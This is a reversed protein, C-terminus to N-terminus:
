ATPATESDVLDHKLDEETIVYHKFQKNPVKNEFLYDIEEFTRHKTEPLRFYCWLFSFFTIGGWLFDVKGKANAEGPNILYPTIFNTVIGYAADCSIAIAVQKSRLRISPVETLITYTLPGISLNYVAGALYLLVIQGMRFGTNTNYSSPLQLFGVILQLVCLTAIGITFTTRRGYLRLFVGSFLSCFTSIATGAISLDFSKDTSLNLQEYFYAASVPSLSFDQCFFVMIVIETRWRAMGRFCDFFSGGSEISEEYLITKQMMAITKDVDVKPHKTSLTYLAKKAEETRDNKVLFWPSEPTIYLVPLILVPWMWQLTFPIKYGWETTYNDFATTIGAILLGGINYNLNICAALYPRLVTPLLEASYTPILVQYFGLIFGALYEAAVLVQISPAFVEIPIICCTLVLCVALTPRRGWKDMPVTAAFSGFVQGVTTAISLVSQWKAQIQNGHGPVNYGFRNRFAPLAFFSTAVSADYGRMIITLTLWLTLVVAKWYIRVAELTGLAHENHTGGFAQDALDTQKFAENVNGGAASTEVHQVVDASDQTIASKAMEPDKEM